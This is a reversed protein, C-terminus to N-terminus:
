LGQKWVEESIICLGSGKERLAVGKEIKRGYNTSHWDRSAFAGIVLYNSANTPSTSRPDGGREEIAKMVTKRAGFAFKGTVNFVREPFVIESPPAPDLPLTTSYTEEAATDQTYGCISEMVERLEEREDADCIGDEFIRDIRSLIDNFPWQPEYPSYKQVWEAFFKAEAESVVGDALIGACIGSLQDIAKSLNNEVNRRFFQTPQGDDDVPRLIYNKM